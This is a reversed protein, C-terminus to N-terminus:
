VGEVKRGSQKWNGELKEEVFGGWDRQLKRKLAEEDCGAAQQVCSRLINRLMNRLVGWGWVLVIRVDEQSGLM